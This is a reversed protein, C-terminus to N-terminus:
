YLLKIYVSFQLYHFYEFYYYLHVEFERIMSPLHMNYTSNNLVQFRHETCYVMRVLKWLRKLANEYDISFDISDWNRM